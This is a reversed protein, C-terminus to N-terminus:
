DKKDENKPQVQQQQQVAPRVEWAANPAAIVKNAGRCNDALRLWAQAM